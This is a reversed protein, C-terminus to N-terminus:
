IIHGQVEFSGPLSVDKLIKWDFEDINATELGNASLMAANGERVSLQHGQLKVTDTNSLSSKMKPNYPLTGQKVDSTVSSIPRVAFASAM